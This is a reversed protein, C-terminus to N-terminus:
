ADPRDTRNRRFTVHNAYLWDLLGWGAVWAALGILWGAWSEAEPLASSCAAGIAIAAVLAFLYLGVPAGCHLEAQCGPCFRAARLVGTDCYSCKYHTRNM